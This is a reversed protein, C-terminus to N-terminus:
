EDRGMSEMGRCVGFHDLKGLDFVLVETSLLGDGALVVSQQNGIILLVVGVGTLSQLVGVRRGLEANADRRSLFAQIATPVADISGARHFCCRAIDALIAAEYVVLCGERWGCAGCGGLDMLVTDSM